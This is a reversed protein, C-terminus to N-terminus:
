RPSKKPESTLHQFLLEGLGMGKSHAMKISLEDDLMSQYMKEAFSKEFLGGEPLSERMSSILKNLLLAEFDKCAEALQKKDSNDAAQASNKLQISTTQSKPNQIESTQTNFGNMNPVTKVDM